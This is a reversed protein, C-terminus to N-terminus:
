AEEGWKAVPMETSLEDPVVIQFLETQTAILNDAELMVEAKYRGPLFAETGMVRRENSWTVAFSHGNRRMLLDVIATEGIRIEEPRIEAATRPSTDNPDYLEKTDSFRGEKVEAIMKGSEDFYRISVFPKEAKTTPPHDVRVNRFEVRAFHAIEHSGNVLVPHEVSAPGQYVLHPRPREAMDQRLAGFRM